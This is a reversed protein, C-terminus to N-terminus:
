VHRNDCALYDAIENRFNEIGGEKAHVRKVRIPHTSLVRDLQELTMGSKSVTKRAKELAKAHDAEIKSKEEPLLITAIRPTFFNEPTFLCYPKYKDSKPRPVPLANLVMICSAVSCSGMDHQPAYFNSLTWYAEQAKSENLLKRGEPSNLAIQGKGLPLFRAQSDNSGPPKAGDGTLTVCSLFLIVIGV